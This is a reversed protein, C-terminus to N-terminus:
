LGVTRELDDRSFISIEQRNDAYNTKIILKIEGDFFTARACFYIYVVTDSPSVFRRAASLCVGIGVVLM